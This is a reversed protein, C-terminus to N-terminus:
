TTGHPSAFGPPSGIRPRTVEVAHAIHLLQKEGFPRGIFQIGVPLSPTTAGAEPAPALGCPLSLAPLGALNVNVTMLDGLFMDLAGSAPAAATSAAASELLKDRLRFATTPAVPCLLAHCTSLSALMEARIVARVRQAYTYYADIYRSSSTSRLTLLPLICMMPSVRVCGASLTYTGTLIRRKVEPGFGTGRTAAMTASLTEKNVLAGYRPVLSTLWQELQLAGAPRVRM